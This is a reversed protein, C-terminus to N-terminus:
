GGWVILVPALVSLRGFRVKVLVRLEEVAGKEEGDDDEVVEEMEDNVGVTGEAVKRRWRSWWEEGKEGISGALVERKPASPTEVIHARHETLQENISKSVAQVVSASPIQFDDCLCQAFIEPTIVPDLYIYKTLKPLHLHLFLVCWQPEM